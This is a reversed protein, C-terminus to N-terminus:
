KKSDFFVGDTTRGSYPNEYQKGTTKRQKIRNLDQGIKGQIFALRKTLKENFDLLTRAIREEQETRPPEVQSILEERRNLLDAITELYADREEGEPLPSEVHDYLKKTISFLEMLPNM